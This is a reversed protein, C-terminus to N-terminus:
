LIRFDFFECCHLVLETEVLQRDLVRSVAILRRLDFLVALREEGHHM